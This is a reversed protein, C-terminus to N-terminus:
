ENWWWPTLDKKLHCNFCRLILTKDTIGNQIDRYLRGYWVVSNVRLGSTPSRLSEAGDGNIHDLTMVRVDDEGCDQCRGGYHSIVALKNRKRRDRMKSRQIDRCIECHYKGVRGNPKGCNGCCGSAVKKDKARKSWTYRNDACRQCVTRGEVCSSNGCDRCLGQLLREKRHRRPEALESKGRDAISQPTIM